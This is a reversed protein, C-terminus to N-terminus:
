ARSEVAVMFATEKNGTAFAVGQLALTCLMTSALLRKAKKM